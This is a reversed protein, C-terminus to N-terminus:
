LSEKPQRKTLIEDLVDSVTRGSLEARMAQEVGAYASQLVPQIGRGVPCRQSPQGAHMAFIQGSEVADYVALLSTKDAPSTLNWGASSGRRASVLGAERLSGLLRRIVVPNTNVSAAIQDSTVTDAGKRRALEMWALTHIAITLRSNASM